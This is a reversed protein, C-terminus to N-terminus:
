ILLLWIFFGVWIPNPKCLLKEPFITHWFLMVLQGLWNEISNFLFPSVDIKQLFNNYIQQQSGPNV